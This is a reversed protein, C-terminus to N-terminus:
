YNIIKNIISNILREMIPCCTLSRTFSSFNNTLIEQIPDKWLLAHISHTPRGSIREFGAQRSASRCERTYYHTTTSVCFGVVCSSNKRNVPCAQMINQCTLLLAGTEPSLVLGIRAVKGILPADLSRSPFCLFVRFSRTNSYCLLRRTSM